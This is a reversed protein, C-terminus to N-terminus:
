TPDGFEDQNIMEGDRFIEVMGRRTVWDLGHSWGVALRVNGDLDVIKLLVVAADVLEADDIAAQVGLADLRNGIFEGNQFTM